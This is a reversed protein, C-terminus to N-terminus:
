CPGKVGWPGDIPGCVSIGMDPCYYGDIPDCPVRVPLLSWTSGCFGETMDRPGLRGM